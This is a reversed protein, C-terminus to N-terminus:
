RQYKKKKRENMISQVLVKVERKGKCIAAPVAQDRDLPSTTRSEVIADLCLECYDFNDATVVVIVLRQYPKENPDETDPFDEVPVHGQIFAAVL